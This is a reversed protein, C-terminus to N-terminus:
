KRRNKGATGAECRKRRAKGTIPTAAPRRARRSEGCSSRPSSSVASFRKGRTRDFRVTARRDASKATSEKPPPKTTFVNTTYQHMVYNWEEASTVPDTNKTAPRRC